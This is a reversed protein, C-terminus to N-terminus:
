DRPPAATPDCPGPDCHMGPVCYTVTRGAVTVQRPITGPPCTIATAAPASLVVATGAAAVTAAVAISLKLRM